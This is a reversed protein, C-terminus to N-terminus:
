TEDTIVFATCGTVQSKPIDLCYAATAPYMDTLPEGSEDTHDFGTYRLYLTATDGNVEVKTFERQYQHACTGNHIDMVLVNQEFYEETDRQNLWEGLAPNMGTEAELTAILTHLSERSDAWLTTANLFQGTLEGELYYFETSTPVLSEAQAVTIKKGDAFGKPVTVYVSVANHAAEAEENRYRLYVYGDTYAVQEVKPASVSTSFTQFSILDHEDFFAEDYGEPAGEASTYLAPTPYYYYSESPFNDITYRTVASSFDSVELVKYVDAVADLGVSCRLAALADAVDITGSGDLDVYFAPDENGTFQSPISFPLSSELGVAYRLLMLADAATISGDGNWDGMETIEAHARVDDESIDSEEASVAFSMSGLLLMAALFGATLKKKM